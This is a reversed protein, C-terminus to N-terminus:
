LECCLVGCRFLTRTLLFSSIGLATWVWTGLRRKDKKWKDSEDRDVKGRSELRKRKKGGMQLRVWMKWVYQVCTGTAISRRKVRCKTFFFACSVVAFLFFSFFGLCFGRRCGALRIIVAWQHNPPWDLGEEWRGKWELRDECTFDYSPCDSKM